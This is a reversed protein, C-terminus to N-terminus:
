GKNLQSNIMQLGVIKFYKLLMPAAPPANVVNSYLVIAVCNNWDDDLFVIKDLQACEIRGNELRENYMYMGGLIEFIICRFRDLDDSVTSQFMRFFSMKEYYNNIIRVVTNRMEFWDTSYPMNAIAEEFENAYREM